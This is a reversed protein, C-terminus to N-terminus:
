NFDEIKVEYKASLKVKKRLILKKIFSTEIGKKISIIAQIASIITIIITLCIFVISWNKTVDKCLLIIQFITGAAFAISIILMISVFVILINKKYQSYEAQAYKLNKQYNENKLQTIKQEAKAREEMLTKNFIVKADEIHSAKIMDLVEYITNHTLEEINNDTSKILFDNVMPHNKLAIFDYESIKNTDKEAELLSIFKELMAQTPKFASYCFSLVKNTAVTNAKEANEGCIIMGIFADSIVPSITDPYNESNYKRIASVFGYNSSVYFYPADALVQIKNNKRLAYIDITSDADTTISDERLSGRTNKKYEEVIKARIQDHSEIIKYNNWDFDCDPQISIGMKTLNSKLLEIEEGVDEARWGQSRFYNCIDSSRSIDYETSEVYKEANKLNNIVEQYNRNFIYLKCGKERLSQFLFCYEQKYYEGYYGLLRFIIPSDIYINKESFASQTLGENFIYSKILM